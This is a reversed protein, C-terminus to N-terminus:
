YSQKILRGHDHINVLNTSSDSHSVYVIAGGFNIDIGLKMVGNDLWGMTGDIKAVDSLLSSAAFAFFVISTRLMRHLNQMNLCNVIM